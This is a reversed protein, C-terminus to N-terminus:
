RPDGAATTPASAPAAAQRRSRAGGFVPAFFRAGNCRRTSRGLHRPMEVPAASSGEAPRHRHRGDQARLGQSRSCRADRGYVDDRISSATM